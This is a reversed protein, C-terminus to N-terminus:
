KGFSVSMRAQMTAYLWRLHGLQGIGCEAEMECKAAGVLGRTRTPLSHTAIWAPEGASIISRAVAASLSEFNRSNRSSESGLGAAASGCRFSNKAACRSTVAMAVQRAFLEAAMEFPWEGGFEINQAFRRLGAAPNDIKLHLRSLFGLWRLEGLQPGLARRQQDAKMVKGTGFPEFLRGLPDLSELRVEDFYNRGGTREGVVKATSRSISSRDAEICTTPM